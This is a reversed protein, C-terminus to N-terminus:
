HLLKNDCDECNYPEEGIEWYPCDKCKPPMNDIDNM